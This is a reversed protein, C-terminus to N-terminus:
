LAFLSAISQGDNMCIPSVKCDATKVAIMMSIHHQRHASSNGNVRICLMKQPFFRGPRAIRKLFNQILRDATRQAPLHRTPSQTDLGQKRCWKRCLDGASVHIAEGILQVILLGDPLQCSSEAQGSDEARRM